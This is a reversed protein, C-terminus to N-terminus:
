RPPLAPRAPPAPPATPTGFARMPSPAPFGLVPQGRLATTLLRAIGGLINAQVAQGVADRPNDPNAAIAAVAVQPTYVVVTETAYGESSGTKGAIPRGPLLQRMREGTGGDCRGFASQDGVPCRAADNAARATDAPLVRRCAPDAVPLRHGASDSIATVPLPACYVGDAAVTAYANALDLPTTASVGLTFPGWENAGDLSMRADSDARFRIGLRQAMEVVRAAGVQEELHAFYTNVSRGFASWMTRPGNQYAPTANVPCWRGACSAPDDVRYRTVLRGPASYTTNLPLGAEIAALMTFLKFTSGGQYGAIDGGGAVLQNVTNPYNVQGPPNPALSYHRNVALALVRGTGPQVVATPAARPEDYGYVSLTHRLAAEQIEPDLSTVIRYGGRQLALRREQPTAGFAPQEEWWKMVYDCFFGWDEQEPRLTTCNGPQESPRLGLPARDAADRDAASIQGLQAMRDLVYTRRDLAAKADGNIPDYEDPSQVLGALLAAEPLSLKDPPKSFYRASATAVGYAGAGFYAINLYRGLIEDKSLRRELALAWRMERVKRGLSTETAAAREEPSLAPDGKRVNRVYQMTLTSAGQRSDGHRNAVVARLVGRLDVGSHQYFRADEAAVIAQRMVPAVASLEVEHRNEAFFSTVLTRGDSAYLYSREAVPPNRLDEPLEGGPVMSLGYGMLLQAPLASVGLVLGGLVGALVVTALLYIRSRAM